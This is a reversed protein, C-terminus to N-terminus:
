RQLEEVIETVISDELGNVREEAMKAGGRVVLDVTTEAIRWNETFHKYKWGDQVEHDEGKADQGDGGQRRRLAKAVWREM